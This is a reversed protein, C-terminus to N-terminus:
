QIGLREMEEKNFKEDLLKKINEYNEIINPNEKINDFTDNLYKNTKYGQLYQNDEDIKFDEFYYNPYETNFLKLEEDVKIKKNNISPTILYTGVKELNVNEIIKNLAFQYLIKLVEDKSSFITELKKISSDTLGLQKNIEINEKEISETLGIFYQIPIKPYKKNLVILERWGIFAGNNEYGGITNRTVGLIEAFEDQNMKLVKTRFYRLNKRAQALKKEEDDCNM